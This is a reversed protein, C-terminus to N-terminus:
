DTQRKLWRHIAAVDMEWADNKEQAIVEWKFAQYHKTATQQDGTVAVLITMSLEAPGPGGYGWDFRTKPQKWWGHFPGPALREGNLTVLVPYRQCRVTGTPQGKRENAGM